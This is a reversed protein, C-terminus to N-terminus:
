AGLAKQEDNERRLALLDMASLGAAAAKPIVSDAVQQAEAQQEARDRYSPPRRGDIDAALAAVTLPRGKGYRDVLATKIEAETHGRDLLAKIMTNLAQARHPPTKGGNEPKLCWQWFGRQLRNAVQGPTEAADDSAVATPTAGQKEGQEEIRDRPSRDGTMHHGTGTMHHGTDSEWVDLDFVVRLPDGNPRRDVEIIGLEELRALSTTVKGASIGTRRAIENRTVKGIYSGSHSQLWGAIRMDFTDLRRDEWRWNPVHTFGSRGRSVITPEPM